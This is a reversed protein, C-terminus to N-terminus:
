SSSFGSAVNQLIGSVFKSKNSLTHKKLNLEISSGLSENRVLLMLGNKWCHIKHDGSRQGLYQLVM